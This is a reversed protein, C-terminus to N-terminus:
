RLYNKTLYNQKTTLNFDFFANNNFQYIKNAMGGITLADLGIGNKNNYEIQIGNTERDIKVNFPVIGIIKEIGHNNTMTCGNSGSKIM